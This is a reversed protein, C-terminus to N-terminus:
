KDNTETGGRSRVPSLDGDPRQDDREDPVRGKHPTEQCFDLLGKGSLAVFCLVLIFFVPGWGM